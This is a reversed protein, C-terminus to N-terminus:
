TTTNALDHIFSEPFNGTDTPKKYEILIGHILDTNDNTDMRVYYKHSSQIRKKMYKFVKKLHAPSTNDKTGKYNSFAKIYPKNDKIEDDTTSAQIAGYSGVGHNNDLFVVNPLEAKSETGNCNSILADILASVQTGSQSGKFKEFKGNFTSTEMQSLTTDDTVGNTSSFIYMGLAIILISLLISGAIILAKSANEM